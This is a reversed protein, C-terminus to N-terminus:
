SEVLEKAIQLKPKGNEAAFVEYPEMDLSMKHTEIVQEDGIILVSQRRM